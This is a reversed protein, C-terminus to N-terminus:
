LLGCNLMESNDKSAEMEVTAGGFKLKVHVREKSKTSSSATWWVCTCSEVYDNDNSRKNTQKAACLMLSMMEQLSNVLEESRKPGVVSM